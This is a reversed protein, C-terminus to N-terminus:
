DRLARVYDQGFVREGTLALGHQRGLEVLVGPAPRMGDPFVNGRIFDMSRRFDAFLRDQVTIDHDEVAGSPM